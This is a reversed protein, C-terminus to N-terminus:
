SVSAVQQLQDLLHRLLSEPPQTVRGNVIPLSAVSYLGDYLSNELTNLSRDQRSVETNDGMDREVRQSIPFSALAIDESPEVLLGTGSSPGIMWGSIMTIGM